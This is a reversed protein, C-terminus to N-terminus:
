PTQVVQLRVTQVRATRRWWWWSVLANIWYAAYLFATLSLDRSAYLPVAISNVLLWFMWTEIKRQMLLLQAIVSFVLVASDVFPAYADTWYHLMAGYAGTAAVGILLYRLQLALPAHAVELPQGQAGRLWRWWGMASTVVFFMQLAVDAYLQSQYFLVGFLVCSVIGSWWTHVSDRGALLISV